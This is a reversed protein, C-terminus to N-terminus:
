ILVITRRSSSEWSTSCGAWQGRTHDVAPSKKGLSKENTPSHRSFSQLPHLNCQETQETCQGRASSTIGQHSCSYKLSIHIMCCPLLFQPSLSIHLHMIVRKPNKNESTIMHTAIECAVNVLKKGRSVSEALDALVIFFTGVNITTENMTPSNSKYGHKCVMNYLEIM